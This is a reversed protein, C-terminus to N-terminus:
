VLILEIGMNRIAIGAEPELGADTIIRHAARLPAIATFAIHGFKSSDVVVTIDRARSLMAQKVLTDELNFETFGAELDVAGAGLFLKDVYFDQVARAALHGVLSREGRRLIGGTLILRIGPHEALLTAIPFCPTIITLDQHDYLHRAIELTTTGVDLMVSDGKKILGAAARGIRTKEDTRETSRLLFPPEYSRGRNSVAGGHVRRLLGQRQLVDLDRRITMESVAFM